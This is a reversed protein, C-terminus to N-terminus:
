VAELTIWYNGLHHKIDIPYTNSLMNLIINVDAIPFAGSIQINEIEPSVRLLGRHYRSVEQIFRHLPMNHVALMSDLWSITDASLTEHSLLSHDSLEAQHGTLIINKEKHDAFKPVAEVRGEIVGLRTAHRYQRVTFNAELPSLFAEQTSVIFPKFDQSTVNAVHLQIEGERLALLREKGDFFADFATATNLTVQTGDPLTVRKMQGKATRYDARWHQNEVTKYAGWAIPGTALLLALKGINLRREKDDPRNLVAYAIDKPLTDVQNIFRQARQWAFRNNDSSQQWHELQAQEAPTLPKEQQKVLWDAAELMSKKSIKNM